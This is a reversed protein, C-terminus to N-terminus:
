RVFGMLGDAINYYNLNGLTLNSRPDYFISPIPVASINRVAAICQDPFGGYLFFFGYFDISCDNPSYKFNANFSRICDVDNYISKMQAQGQSTNRYLSISWYRNSILRSIAFWSHIDAESANFVLFDFVTTRNVIFALAVQSPRFSGQNWQSILISFWHPASRNILLTPIDTLTTLNSSNLWLFPQNNGTRILFAPIWPNNTNDSFLSTPNHLTTANNVYVSSITRNTLVTVNSTGSYTLQYSSSPYTAFLQCTFSSKTLIILSLSLCHPHLICSCMCASSVSVTRTLFPSGTLYQSNIIKAVPLCHVSAMWNMSLLYLIAAIRAWSM